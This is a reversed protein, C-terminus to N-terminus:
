QKTQSELWRQEGSLTKRLTSFIAILSTIEHHPLVTIGTGAPLHLKVFPGFKLVNLPPSKHFSCRPDGTQALVPPTHHLLAAFGELLVLHDSLVQRDSSLATLVTEGEGPCRIWIQESARGVKEWRM